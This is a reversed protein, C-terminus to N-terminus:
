FSAQVVAGGAERVWHVGFFEGLYMLAWSIVVAVAVAVVLRKPRFRERMATEENMLHTEGEEEGATYRVAQAARRPSM